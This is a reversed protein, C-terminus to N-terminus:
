KNSSLQNHDTPPQRGDTLTAPTSTHIDPHCPQLKM